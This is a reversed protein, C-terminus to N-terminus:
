HLCPLPVLTFQCPTYAQLDLLLRSLEDQVDRGASAGLADHKPDVDIAVVMVGGVVTRVVAHTVVVVVRRVVVVAVVVAGNAVVM